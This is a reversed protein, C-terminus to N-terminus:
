TIIWSVKRPVFETGNSSLARNWYYYYYYYYYYYNYSSSSSSSCHYFIGELMNRM